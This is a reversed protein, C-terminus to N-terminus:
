LNMKKIRDLDRKNQRDKITNRKDYQRKGQALVVELKIFGRESLYLKYPVITFGKEKVKRDLKKLEAKKLLLKRVRRPEHNNHAGFKYEGIYMNRIFLEGRQMFCFAEKLNTHGARVSKVETGTLMMGAEFHGSFQYEYEAKRNIITTFKKSEKKKAM